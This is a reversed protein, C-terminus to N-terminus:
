STSIIIHKISGLCDYVCAFGTVSQLIRPLISLGRPDKRPPSVAGAFPPPDQDSLNM